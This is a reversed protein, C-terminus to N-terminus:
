AIQHRRKRPMPLVDTGERRNEEGIEFARQGFEGAREIIRRHRKKVRGHQGGISYCAYLLRQGKRTSPLRRQTKRDLGRALRELLWELRWAPTHEFM